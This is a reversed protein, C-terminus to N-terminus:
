EATPPLEWYSVEEFWVNFNDTVLGAIFLGFTGEAFTDDQITNLPEGNVYLTFSSGEALLVLRNTAEEGTNIASNATWPVLMVFAEGNWIRFSYKGDCTLGFLYQRSANSAARAMLGYRDFGSCEGPSAIVELYFNELIPRSVMWSEWTDAQLSTMRLRNEETIRMEVDEDSYIPWNSANEFTDRWDPEGLQAIPDDDVQTPAATNTPPSTPSPELTDTPIPTDSPLPTNTPLPTSTPPFTAEADSQTPQSTSPSEPTDEAPVVETTNAVAIDTLQAAITAAAAAYQDDEEETEIPEPSPTYTTPLSCGALLTALCVFSLLAVRFSYKM